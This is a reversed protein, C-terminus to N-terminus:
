HSKLWGVMQEFASKQADQIKPDEYEGNVAFGTGSTLQCSDEVFLLWAISALPALKFLSSQGHPVGPYVKIEHQIQKEEM